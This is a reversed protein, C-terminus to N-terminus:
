LLNGGMQGELDSAVEPWGTFKSKHASTRIKIYM